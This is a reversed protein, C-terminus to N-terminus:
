RSDTRDDLRALCVRSRARPGRRRSAAAGHSLPPPRAARAIEGRACGPARASVADVRTVTATAAAHACRVPDGNETRATALVAFAVDALARHTYACVTHAWVVFEEANWERARAGQEGRRAASPQVAELLADILVSSEAVDTPGQDAVWALIEARSVYGRKGRDVANFLEAGRRLQTRVMRVPLCSNVLPVDLADSLHPHSRELAPRHVMILAAVRRRVTFDAREGEDLAPRDPDGEYGPAGCGRVSRRVVGLLEEAEARADNM